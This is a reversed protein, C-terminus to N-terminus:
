HLLGSIKSPVEKMFAAFRDIPAPPAPLSFGPGGAADRDEMDLRTYGGAASSSRVM